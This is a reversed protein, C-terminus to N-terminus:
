SRSIFDELLDGLKHGHFIHRMENNTGGLDEGDTSNDSTDYDGKLTVYVNM